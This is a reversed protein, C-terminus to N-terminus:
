PSREDPHLDIESAEWWGAGSGGIQVMYYREGTDAHHGVAFVRVWEHHHRQGDRFKGAVVKPFWEDQVIMQDLEDQKRSLRRIFVFGAIVALAVIVVLGLLVFLLVDLLV